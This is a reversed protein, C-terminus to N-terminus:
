QQPTKPVFILEKIMQFIKTLKVSRVRAEETTQPQETLPMVVDLRAKAPHHARWQWIVLTIVMAVFSIINVADEVAQSVQGEAIFGKRALYEILLVALMRSFPSSTFLNMIM